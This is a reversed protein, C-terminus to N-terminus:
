TRPRLGGDKHPKQQTKEFRKLFIEPHDKTKYNGLTFTFTFNYGGNIRKVINTFLQIDKFPWASSCAVLGSGRRLLSMKNNNNNNNNFQILHQKNLTFYYVDEM